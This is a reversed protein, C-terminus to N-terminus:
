EVPTALNVVVSKIETYDNLISELCLERGLGSEKMGGYPQGLFQGGGYNVCVWGAEIEQVMRIARATDKSWVYAALGYNTDNALRIVGEEDEWPIAVIVPGFVEDRALISNHNECTFITPEVFYGEALPGEKPPLGGCILKVGEEEMAKTIYHCAKSFQTASSLAGMDTAEDLPDGIKLAKVKRVLRKLFSDFVSKHIYIRSGSTCSQGQRTFRVSAIVGDAIYDTDADPCIIQPNKGGLEMSANLVRDAAHHLLTKGVETSGTMSIKRISPHKALAAGCEEGRGTIVNLVGPPLFNNAISAMKLVGIPADSAAKLVITNGAVLAPVVKEAALQVPANWPIIGAVVGLPERRTYLLMNDSSPYVTGKIEGGLGGYYRFRDCAGLAEPRAQTRIANGNESAITRALDEKEVDMADAIKLLINGRERAPIRRWGKFAREAAAVAINVDEANANPVEAIVQGKKSPNEVPIFRGSVSEVRKGDILM